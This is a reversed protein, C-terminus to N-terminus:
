LTIKAGLKRYADAYNESANVLEPSVWFRRNVEFVALRAAFPLGFLKHVLERQDIGWKEGLEPADAVNAIMGQVAWEPGLEHSMATGNNADGIACWEGVSLVPMAEEACKAAAAILFGVRGSFSEVGTPDPHIIDEVVASYYTARKAM